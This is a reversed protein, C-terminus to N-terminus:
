VNRTVKRIATVLQSASEKWTILGPACADASVEIHNNVLNEVASVLSLPNELSFYCLAEGGIERHIEIDSALVPLGMSLAEMLPLGFGEARSAFVLAASKQYAETLFNDSASPYFHLHEDRLPHSVMRGVFEEAEFGSRGVILLSIKAGQEWLYEFATLIYQHNKRPEITGVVLFTPNQFLDGLDNGTEITTMPKINSGLYFSSLPTETAELHRMLELYAHVDRQVTGSICIAGDSAQISRDLWNRFTQELGDPVWNPHLVPILDYIVTVVKVDFKKFASVADWIPISWSSDLMLLVDDKSLENSQAWRQFLHPKLSTKGFDEQASSEIRPGHIPNDKEVYQVSQNPGQLFSRLAVLRSRAGPETSPAWWFHRWSRIPLLRGAFTFLQDLCRRWFRRTSWAFQLRDGSSSPQHEIHIQDLALEEIHTASLKVLKVAVVGDPPHTVLQRALERVCRQIGTRLDPKDAVFSCDVWVRRM